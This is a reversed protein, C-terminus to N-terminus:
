YCYPTPLPFMHHRHLPPLYARAAELECLKSNPSYSSGSGGLVSHKAGGCRFTAGISTQNRARHPRTRWVGFRFEHRNERYIRGHIPCQAAYVCCVHVHMRCGHNTKPPVRARGPSHHSSRHETDIEASAPHHRTPLTAAWRRRCPNPGGESSHRNTGPAHNTRATRKRSPRSPLFINDQRRSDTKDGKFCMRCGHAGFMFCFCPSM